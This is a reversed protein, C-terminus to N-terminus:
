GVCSEIAAFTAAERQITSALDAGRLWDAPVSATAAATAAVPESANTWFAFLVAVGPTSVSTDTDASARRWRSRFLINTTRQFAQHRRM